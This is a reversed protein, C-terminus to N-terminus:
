REDMAWKMWGWASDNLMQEALGPQVMADILKDNAGLKLLVGIWDDEICWADIQRALPAIHNLAFTKLCICPSPKSNFLTHIETARQESLGARVLADVSNLHTPCKSKDPWPPDEKAELAKVDPANKINAHSLGLIIDDPPPIAPRCKM